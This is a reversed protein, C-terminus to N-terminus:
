FSPMSANKFLRAATKLFRQCNIRNKRQGDVHAGQRCQVEADGSLRHKELSGAYFVVTNGM